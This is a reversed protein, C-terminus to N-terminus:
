LRRFMIKMAMARCGRMMDILRDPFGFDAHL